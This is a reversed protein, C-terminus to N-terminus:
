DKSVKLTTIKCKLRFEIYLFFLYYFDYHKVIKEIEFIVIM